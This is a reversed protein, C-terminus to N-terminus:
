DAKTGAFITQSQEDNGGVSLWVDTVRRSLFAGALSLLMGKHLLPLDIDDYEKNTCTDIIKTKM